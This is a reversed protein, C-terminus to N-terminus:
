TERRKRYSDKVRILDGEFVFHDCGDV